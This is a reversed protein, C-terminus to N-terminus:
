FNKSLTINFSNEFNKNSRILRQINVKYNWSNATSLDFGTGVKLTSSYPNKLSYTYTNTTNSTFYAKTNSNETLDEIFEFKLFPSFLNGNIKKEHNIVSGISVSRNTLNQKKFHLAQNNGSESFGDFVSYGYDIRSYTSLKFKKFNKLHNIKVSSFVQHIDRMGTVKSSVNGTDTIRTISNSIIGFGLMSDIFISKNSHWSSYISIDKGSSSVNTGFAGIDTDDNNKRIAIGFLTNKKIVKDIGFTLGNSKSNKSVNNVSLKTKGRSISGSSWVKWKKPVMGFEKKLYQSLPLEKVFKDINTESLKNKLDPNNKTLYLDLLKAYPYGESNKLNLDLNLDEFKIGEHKKTKRYIEMRYLIASTSNYIFRKASEAQSNVVGTLQRDDFVNFTSGTAETSNITLTTLGVATSTEGAIGGYEIVYYTVSADNKFDNWTGNTKIHLRDEGTSNDNPENNAWGFEGAGSDPDTSVEYGTDVVCGSVAGAGFNGSTYIKGDDPGGSWKWCGEVGADTGGLWANVGAKDDIFSNEEFSTISALYGTLGNLTSAEAATKAASWTINSGHNVVKYYHGNTSNYNTGTATVSVTITPSGTSGNGKFSLTALAANINAQTGRFGVETLSNGACNTPAGDSAEGDSDYGCYGSAKLINSTTTIKINGASAVASVLLTGSYGSISPTTGSDSLLVFSSTDATLTSPMIVETSVVQTNLLM